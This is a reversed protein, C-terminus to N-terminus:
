ENVGQQLQELAAHTLPDVRISGDVLLAALGDMRDLVENPVGGFRQHMGQVNGVLRATEILLANMRAVILNYAIDYPKLAEASHNVSLM